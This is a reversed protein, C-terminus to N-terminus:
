AYVEEIIIIGAGGTGGAGGSSGALGQAGGAGISYSYSASPFNIIAEIYGGAGGGGGSVANGLNTTGGGGGGSGNGTASGGTNSSMGGGHGAGGFPSVGGSGGRLSPSTGISAGSSTGGNPGTIALISIAGTGVTAAGGAGPAGNWGGGFGGTTTLISGFTTNGGNGPSTGPGTGSGAGGGGGGVMRVRLSAVGVPTTYTGSGSTLITTTRLASLSGVFDVQSSANTTFALGSFTSLSFGTVSTKSLSAVIALSSGSLVFHVFYVKSAAVSGTDLGGAGTSGTNILLVSSSAYQQGGLTALILSNTGLNMQVQTNSNKTLGGNQDSRLKQGM